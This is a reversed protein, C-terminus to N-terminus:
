NLIKERREIYAILWSEEEEVCGFDCSHEEWIGNVFVGAKRIPGYKEELRNAERNAELDAEYRTHIRERIELDKKRGKDFIDHIEDFTESDNEQTEEGLDEYVCSCNPHMPCCFWWEDMSREANSKGPWVATTTLPDGSFQDEGLWTLGLSSMYEKNHLSEESPFLRAVRGLFELCKRCTVPSHNQSSSDVAYNGKTFRVYQAEKGGENALMLLKGNNFNISCETFAFRQMDRNLHDTVLKEYRRERLSRQFDSIGVEFLGLAEKIENDDPSVMLSRIETITSGRALAEAIQERYMKTILDYAKGSREGDKNYIALWEAGKAQGYILAYTQERTLGTREELEDVDELGPLNYVKARESFELTTMRKLEDPDEGQGLMYEAIYGLITAKDREKKYIRNWDQSLFDFIEQDAEELEDRSVVREPFQLKDGRRIRDRKYEEGSAPKVHITKGLFRPRDLLSGFFKRRISGIADLWNAKQIEIQIGQSSNGLLTWQLSLFYFLWMFQLERLVRYDSFPSERQM